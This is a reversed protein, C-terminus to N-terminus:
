SCNCKIDMKMISHMHGLSICPKFNVDFVEFLIQFKRNHLAKLHMEEMFDSFMQPFKPHAVKADNKQLLFKSDQVMVIGMVM